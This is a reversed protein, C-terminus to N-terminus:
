GRRSRRRRIFFAFAVAAVIAGRTPNTSPVLVCGCGSDDAVPAPTAADATSADTSPPVFPTACSHDVCKDGSKCQGDSNCAVCHGAFDDATVDCVNPKQCDNDSGCPRCAKKVLDCVPSAGACDKDSLCGVCTNTSDDCVPKTTERCGEQYDSTCPVCQGQSPGQTACAPKAGSCANGSDYKNCPRCAPPKLVGDCIPIEAVCGAAYNSWIKQVVYGDINASTGECLDASEASDWATQAVTVWALPRASKVTTNTEILGVEMDTMAEALEHSHILTSTDFGYGCNPHVGYPVSMGNYTLTFHYAGFSSCSGINVLTISVGAPFDIMYLSDVNGKADLAPQPLANAKLQAILEDQIEQDTIAKKTNAPTITTLGVYSGRGIHQESGILSDVLGTKGITDYETFWDMFRSKTITTYFGGLKNMYTADVGSGWAVAVVKVNSLVRGGYYQLKDNPGFPGSPKLPATPILGNELRFIHPGESAMATTSGCVLAAALAIGLVKVSSMRANDWRKLRYCLATSTPPLRKGGNSVDIADNRRDAV